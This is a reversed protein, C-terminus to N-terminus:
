NVTDFLGDITDSVEFCIAIKKVFFLSSASPIINFNACNISEFKDVIDILTITLTIFQIKFVKFSFVLKNVFKIFLKKGNNVLIIDM